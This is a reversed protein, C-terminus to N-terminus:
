TEQLTTMQLAETDREQALWKRCEEEWQQREQQTEPFLQGGLEGLISGVAYNWTRKKDCFRPYENVLERFQEILREDTYRREEPEAEHFFWERGAKYGRAADQNTFTVLTSVEPRLQGTAPSLVGGHLMGVFYGIAKHLQEEHHGDFRNIQACMHLNGVLFSEPLPGQAEIERHVRWGYLRWSLGNEYNAAFTTNRIDIFPIIQQVKTVM